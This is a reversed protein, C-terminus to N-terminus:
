PHTSQWIAVISGGVLGLICGVLFAIAIVQQWRPRPKGPGPAAEAGEMAKDMVTDHVAEGIDHATEVIDVPDFDFDM